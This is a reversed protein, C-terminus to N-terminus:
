ARISEHGIITGFMSSACLPAGGLGAMHWAHWLTLMVVFQLDLGVMGHWLTLM